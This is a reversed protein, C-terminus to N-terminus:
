PTKPLDQTPVNPFHKRLLALGFNESQATAAYFNSSSVTGEAFCRMVQRWALTTVFTEWGLTAQEDTLDISEWLKPFFEQDIQAVFPAMWKGAKGAVVDNTLDLKEPGGSLFAMLATRLVKLRALEVREIWLKAREAMRQYTAESRFVEAPLPLLREHFGATNGNDGEDRAVGQVLLVPTEGDEERVQMAVSSAYVGTFLLDCLLRYSVGSQLNLVSQREVHVPAWIDGVRGGLATGEEAQKSSLKAKKKGSDEVGDRPPSVSTIRYSSSSRWQCEIKDEATKRLRVIRAMDVFFPDLQDLRLISEFNGDWFVTWVLGIKGTLRHERVITEREELMLSTDRVFRAGWGWNNSPCVSVLPRTAFSGKIRAVGYNGQGCYGSTTQLSVLAYVWHEIDAHRMRAVKLDHNKVTVLVDIADPTESIGPTFRGQPIPPQMFAPKSLNDQILMWPEEQEGGLQHLASRWARADTPLKDGLHAHSAMAGVQCLFQFWSSQQHARLGVFELDDGHSLRALVEPLNLKEADGDRHRVSFTPTTLLTM